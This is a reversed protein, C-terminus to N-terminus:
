TGFTGPLVTFLPDQAVSGWAPPTAPSIKWKWCSQKGERGGWDRGRDNGQMERNRGRRTKRRGERERELQTHTPTQPRQRDRQREGPDLRCNSNSLCRLCLSEAVKMQQSGLSGLTQLQCKLSRPVQGGAQAGAGQEKGAELQEGVWAGRQFVSSSVWNRFLFNIELPGLAVPTPSPLPLRSPPGYPPM